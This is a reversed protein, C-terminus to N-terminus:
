SAEDAPYRRRAENAGPTADRSGSDRREGASVGRMRRRSGVKRQPANKKTAEASASTGDARKVKDAAFDGRKRLESVPLTAM